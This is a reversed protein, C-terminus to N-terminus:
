KKPIYVLHTKSILDHASRNKPHLLILIFGSFLLATSFMACIFRTTIMQWTLDSTRTSGGNVILFLGWSKMGITQGAIKWSLAYYLFTTAFLLVPFFMQGSEINDLGTIAKYIPLVTFGVVMFIGLFLIILDYAVAAITRTFSAPYTKTEM